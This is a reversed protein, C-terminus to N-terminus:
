EQDSKNIMRFASAMNLFRRMRAPSARWEGESWSSSSSTDLSVPLRRRPQGRSAEGPESDSDGLTVSQTVLSAGESLSLEGESILGAVLVEGESLRVAETSTDDVTVSPADPQHEEAPDPHSKPTLENSVPNTNEERVSEDDDTEHVSLAVFEDPTISREGNSAIESIRVATEIIDELIDTTEKEINPSVQLSEIGSTLKEKKPCSDSDLKSTKSTGKQKNEESDSIDSSVDLSHASGDIDDAILSESFVTPTPIRQSEIEDNSNKAIDVVEDNDEQNSSFNMTKNDVSLSQIEDDSMVESHNQSQKFTDDTRSYCSNNMDEQGSETFDATHDEQGTQTDAVTTVEEITSLPHWGCGPALPPPEPVPAATEPIYESTQSESAPGDPESLENSTNPINSDVIDDHTEDNEPISEPSECSKPKEGQSVEDPKSEDTVSDFNSSYSDKQHESPQCGPQAVEDQKSEDTGSEFQSSYSEKLPKSTQSEDSKCGSESNVEFASSYEEKKDGIGGENLKVIGKPNSVIMEQNKNKEKLIEFVKEVLM